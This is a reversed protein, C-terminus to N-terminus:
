EFVSPLHACRGTGGSVPCLYVQEALYSNAERLAAADPERRFERQAAYLAEHGRIVKLLVLQQLSCSVEAYAVDNGDETGRSPGEIHADQCREALGKALESALESAEVKNRGLIMQKTLLDRAHELDQDAPVWVAISGGRRHRDSVQKWPAAAPYPAMIFRETIPDYLAEGPTGSASACAVLTLGAALLGKMKM